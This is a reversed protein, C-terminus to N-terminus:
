QFLYQKPSIRKNGPNRYVLFVSGKIEVVNEPIFITEIKTWAFAGKEIKELTNPLQIIRIPKENFAGVGIETVPYGGLTDPIVVEAENGVYKTIVAHDDVIEYQYNGEEAASVTMPCLFLISLISLLLAIRKQKM